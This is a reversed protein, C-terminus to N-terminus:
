KFLLVFKTGKNPESFVSIEGGHEQIFRYTISLGLGTGVGPPKTTFFPDGLRKMNERPIGVGTDEISISKYTDTVETKIRIIGEGSIAQEANVLVNVFAQHLRGENGAIIFPSNSFEKEITIRRKLENSMIILCNEVIKHIDCVENQNSTEKSYQALGNLIKSARTVGQNVIEVYPVIENHKQEDLNKLHEELANIGGKIFNLPNNLEHAVGASLVGLSAMKESHILQKQAAKLSDLTAELEERHHNMEENATTLEENLAIQEDNLALLEENQRLVEDTKELVLKELKKNQLRLRAMRWKYIWILASVVLTIALVRSWWTKWWPPLIEFNYTSENSWYGESSIAKVRFTYKGHPLNGYTASNQDALTSWKKDIGALQYQYRVKKSQKQTIGIFNFTLYNNDYALTLNEPLGTWRTIGDFEFDGVRVGNGLVFSTDKATLTGGSGDSNDALLSWPIPENFLEISTLSLHPPMSYMRIDEPQYITVIDNAGIWISGESTECITNGGNVGIGLFGDDYDYNKFIPTSVPYTKPNMVDFSALMEAEIISLGFRTGILLDGRKDFTMSLVNNSSLGNRETLTVTKRVSLAQTNVDDIGSEEHLVTIGGGSTGIWINGQHDELISVITNNALGEKETFQTISKGDFKNVGGEWTGFWLNGSRDELISRVKNNSLGEKETLHTFRQGDYRSVGGGWTGFWLNGQRDEAISLVSHNSLGEKETFHTFNKGDFKNLGGGWSGFWFDGRSDKIMSWVRNSSLGEKQTYYTYSDRDPSVVTVGGGDSALWLARSDDEYIAWVSNNSLGEKESFHTFIEGNYKSIGGDTCFWIKHNNDEFISFVINNLLGQEETFHTILKGDNSIRSVGAEWTGFWLNGDHDELAAYVINGSLGNETTYTSFHSGDYKAIGGETCFWLNGARDELISRVINSPLGEDTTFHEFSKGNFKSVGGDSGLWLNNSSDEIISSVKNNILGEAMTYHTLKKRDESLRSVGGVTGIWINGARDELIALINNSLLGEKKTINSFTEGDYMSIGYGETGFWINGNRDEFITLVLNGALGEDRTFHTFYRGDYKSVGGGYTGFWLNGIRDQIVARITSHKLGQLKGFSSFNDPNQDRIYPPQALNVEPIGAKVVVPNVSTTQPPAFSAQGPASKAQFKAVINTPKRVEFINKLATTTEPIGSKTVRPLPVGDSGPTISTLTNTDVPYVPLSDITFIARTEILTTDQKGDCAGLILLLAFVSVVSRRFCPFQPNSM